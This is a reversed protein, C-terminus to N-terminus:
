IHTSIIKIKIKRFDLKTNSGSRFSCHNLALLGPETSRALVVRRLATHKVIKRLLIYKYKYVKAQVKSYLVLKLFGVELVVWHFVILYVFLVEVVQYQNKVTLQTLFV